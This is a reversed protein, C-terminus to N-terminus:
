IKRPNGVVKSFEKVLVGEKELSDVFKADDLKPFEAVGMPMHAIGELIVDKGSRYQDWHSLTVGQKCVLETIKAEVSKTYPARLRVRRVYPLLPSTECFPGKIDQTTERARSVNVYEFDLQELAGRLKQETAGVTLFLKVEKGGM